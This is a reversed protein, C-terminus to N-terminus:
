KGNIFREAMIGAIVGDGTATAIQRIKKDVVDGAAFVGEINTKMDNDVPIYGYENLKIVEKFLESKPQMGIYVFVGDAELEKLEGTKLNEVVVSKVFKDGKVERVETDWVISINPNKFVEDQAGKSAQFHDFQHIITVHKAYRTLFVAEEVASNGGGIVLVNADQYMAGDCTACYHVGRGRFEKEGEAPLKRPTAGTAIIVAKAYYDTDETAIYKEKGEFNVAAIEKLDDIRTGFDVAQKKMNEMLDIGRVVGNTGPYNAVHFTTAVQGGALGEDIVVTLLKARAAYIAASLGAPGGGMILLDCYVKQKERRICAGGIVSEVVQRLEPNSIYGTLRSCVESGDKFFLITPSSKVNLSEALQRNLQRHIKVFKMSGKYKEGMRDFVPALAECPPCDETFFWVIVPLESKIVDNEFNDASSIIIRDSM